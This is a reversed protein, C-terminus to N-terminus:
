EMHCKFRIKSDKRRVSALVTELTTRLPHGVPVRGISETLGQVAEDRSDCVCTEARLTTDAGRLRSELWWRYEPAKESILTEAKFYGDVISEASLRTCWDVDSNQEEWVWANKRYMFQNAFAFFAKDNATGFSDAQGQFYEFNPDALYQEDRALIYGEFGTEANGFDSESLCDIDRMLEGSASDGLKWLKAMSAPHPGARWTSVEEKYADLVAPLPCSQSAEAPSSDTAEAVIAMDGRVQTPTQEQGKKNRCGGFALLMAALIITFGRRSAISRHNKVTQEAPLRHQLM